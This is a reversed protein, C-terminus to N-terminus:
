AKEEEVTLEVGAQEFLKKAILHDKDWGHMAKKAKVKKIGCTILAMACNACPVFTCYAICGRGNKGAMISANFEAHAMVDYKTVKFAAHQKFETIEEPHNEVKSGDLCSLMIYDERDKPWFEDDVGAPFSNYGTSVVRNHEDVIVCGVKTNADKSKKSVTECLEFFYEDWNM